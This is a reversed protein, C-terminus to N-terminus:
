SGDGEEVTVVIGGDVTHGTANRSHLQKGNDSPQVTTEAGEHVFVFPRANDPQAMISLLPEADKNEIQVVTTSSVSVRITSM